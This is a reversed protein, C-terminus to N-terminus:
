VRVAVEETGYRLGKLLTLNGISGNTQVVFSIYVCGSIQATLTASPFRLYKQLVSRAGIFNPIVETLLFIKPATAATPNVLNRTPFITTGPGASTGIMYTDMKSTDPPLPSKITPKVDTDPVMRTRFNSQLTVTM